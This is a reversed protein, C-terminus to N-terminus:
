SRGVSRCGYSTSPCIRAYASRSRSRSSRWTSSAATATASRTSATAAIQSSGRSSTRVGPRARRTPRVASGPPLALGEKLPILYPRNTELVVGEGHLNPEDIVLDKVKREVSQSTPLFSCRIRYATEGLRLDLSAPQVNETPITFGGADIWGAAIAESLFQNPLVGEGPPLTM